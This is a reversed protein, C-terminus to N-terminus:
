SIEDDGLDGVDKNEPDSGDDGSIESALLKGGGLFCGGFPMLIGRRLVLGWAFRAEIAGDWIATVPPIEVLCRM